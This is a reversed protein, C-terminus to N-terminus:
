GYQAKGKLLVESTFGLATTQKAFHGSFSQQCFSWNLFNNFFHRTLLIVLKCIVLQCLSLNVFYINSFHSALLIVQTYLSRNVFHWKVFHWKVFHGTSLIVLQCFSWNVFHGTSLIVPLCFLRWCFSKIILHSALM